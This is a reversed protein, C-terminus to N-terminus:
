ADFKVSIELTRADYKVGYQALVDAPVGDWQNPKNGTYGLDAIGIKSTFFGCATLDRMMNFFAVGQLMEPKAKEPFAIEDVIEIQQQASTAAFDANYRKMCQIDLWKLGGRLPTQYHPMDKAIFEIFAPVGADTASGSTEDKPIIIDALLAITEMEHTDFFKEGALKRERKLEEPTRDIAFSQPSDAIGKGEEPGCAHLMLGAGVSGAALTKLYKRRDM